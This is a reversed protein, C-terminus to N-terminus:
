NPIHSNRELWSSPDLQPVRVTMHVITFLPFWPTWYCLEFEKGLGAAQRVAKELSPNDWRKLREWDENLCLKQPSCKWWKVRFFLVIQSGLFNWPFEFHNALVRETKAKGQSRKEVAFNSAWRLDLLGLSLM